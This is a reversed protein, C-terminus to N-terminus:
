KSEFLDFGHAISYLVSLPEGDGNLIRLNDQVVLDAWIKRLIETKEKIPKDNIGM